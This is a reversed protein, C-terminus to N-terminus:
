WRGLAPDRQFGIIAEAVGKEMRQVLVGKVHAGPDAARANEMIGHLRRCSRRARSTSCSVASIPRTPSTPLSSGPVCPGGLRTFARESEHANVTLIGEPGAIGLAEMLTRAEIEDLQDADCSAILSAVATMGPDTSAANTDVLDM